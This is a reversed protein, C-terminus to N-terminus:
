QIVETAQLLVHQPITLGLAQATKLNIVLEFRTPQEIPLDAPKAGKLIRDVYYAARRWMVALSPGYAMLGGAAAYESDGSIAPLGSQAALEAIRARNPRTFVDAIVVLADIRESAAREYARELDSPERVTLSLLEIGLASAAALTEGYETAMTGDVSNWIAAVRNARPIAEKLLELRKGALEPSIQNLGTVNGGPRAISSVLGSGVPDSAVALVIPIKTTANAVARNGLNATVIVDVNLEVLEAAAQALQEPRAEPYRYEVAINQGDTYGYDHLGQRFAELLATIGTPTGPVLFGIRPVKPAQAQWPLRGCGALLAVGALGVGGVVQRRSARARRVDM